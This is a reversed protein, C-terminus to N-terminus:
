SALEGNEIDVFTLIDDVISIGGGDGARAEAPMLPFERLDGATLDARCDLKLRSPM